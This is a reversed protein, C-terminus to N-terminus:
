FTIKHDKSPHMIEWRGVFALLITRQSCKFHETGLSFKLVFIQAKELSVVSM